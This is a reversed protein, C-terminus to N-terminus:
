RVKNNYWSGSILPRQNANVVFDKMLELSPKEGVLDFYPPQYPPLPATHSLCPSLSLSLSLSLSICYRIRKLNDSFLVFQENIFDYHEAM